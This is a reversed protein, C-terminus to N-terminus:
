PSAIHLSILPILYKSHEARVVLPSFVTKSSAMLATKHGGFGGLFSRLRGQISKYVYLAM